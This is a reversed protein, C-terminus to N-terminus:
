SYRKDKKEQSPYMLFHFHIYILCLETFSVFFLKREKANKQPLPLSVASSRAAQVYFLFFSMIKQKEDCMDIDHMRILSFKFTCTYAYIHM